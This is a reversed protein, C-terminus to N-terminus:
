SCDRPSPSTYLLCIKTLHFTTKALFEEAEAKGPNLRLGQVREKEYSELFAEYETELLGKMKKKFAEPLEIM